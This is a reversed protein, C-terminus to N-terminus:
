APIIEATLVNGTADVNWGGSGYIRKVTAEIRSAGQIVDSVGGAGLVMSYTLGTGIGSPKVADAGIQPGAVSTLRVRAALGAASDSYVLLAGSTKIRYPGGPDPIDLRGVAVEDGATWATAWFAKQSLVQIGAQVWGLTDNAGIRRVWDVGNIWLRTGAKNLFSRVLDHNAILGGGDGSWTRLDIISTPQTQGSTVQVLAIPQDDIGGPAALRGGPIVATAGGSVKVFQSVGATPTWDRRCAILDWRSGSVITDLQITENAVTKDTVGHGFGRGAAISVTRDQGSVATVKWDLASRVGYSALGITPHADAWAGETYPNTTTTDYGNSIFEVPM